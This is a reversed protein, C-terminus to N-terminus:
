SKDTRAVNFIMDEKVRVDDGDVMTGEPKEGHGRKYTVTYIIADSFVPNEFALAVVERFSLERQMITKPRGNVIINIPKVQGPPQPEHSHPETRM